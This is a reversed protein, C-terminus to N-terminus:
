YSKNELYQDTKTRNQLKSNRHHYDPPPKWCPKKWSKPPGPGLFGHLGRFGTWGKPLGLGRKSLNGMGNAFCKFKLMYALFQWVYSLHCVFIQQTKFFTSIQFIFHPPKGFHANWELFFVLHTFNPPGQKTSARPWHSRHSWYLLLGQRRISFNLTVLLQELHSDLM